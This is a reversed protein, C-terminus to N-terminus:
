WSDSYGYKKPAMGYQVQGDHITLAQIQQEQHILARQVDTLM